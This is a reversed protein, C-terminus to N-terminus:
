PFPEWTVHSVPLLAQMWFDWLVTAFLLNVPEPTRMRTCVCVCGVAISGPGYWLFCVFDGGGEQRSLGLNMRKWSSGSSSNLLGSDPGTIRRKPCESVSRPVGEVVPPVSFLAAQVTVCTKSVGPGQALSISAFSEAVHSGETLVPLCHSNWRICSVLM